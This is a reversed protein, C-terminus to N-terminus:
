SLFIFVVVTWSSLWQCAQILYCSFANIVDSFYSVREEGSLTPFSCHHTWWSRYDVSFQPVSPRGSSNGQCISCFLALTGLSKHLITWYHNPMQTISINYCQLMTIHSVLTTLDNACQHLSTTNTRWVIVAPFHQFSNSAVKFPAPYNSVRLSISM